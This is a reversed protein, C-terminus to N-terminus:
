FSASAAIAFTYIFNIPFPFAILLWGSLGAGAAAVGNGLFMTTGFFRGRRDLPFIRAILDQWSAGVWGAGLGHWAYSVFFVVLALSPSRTAVVASAVIGWVPLRELILGLNVVVPKQRSLKELWNATFLQPLVLRGARHRGAGRDM